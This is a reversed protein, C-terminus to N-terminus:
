FRSGARRQAHDMNIPTLNPRPILSYSQVAQMGTKTIATTLVDEFQARNAAQGNLALVMISKFAASPANPNRWSFALKTTGFGAMLLVALVVLMMRAYKKSNMEGAFGGLLGPAPYWIIKLRGSLEANQGKAAVTRIPLRELRLAFRKHREM